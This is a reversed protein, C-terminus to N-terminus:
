VKQKIIVCIGRKVYGSLSQQSGGKPLFLWLSALKVSITM